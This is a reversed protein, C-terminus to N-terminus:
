ANQPLGIDTDSDFRLLESDVLFIGDTLEDFSELYFSVQLTFHSTIDLTQFIDLRITAITVSAMERSAAL